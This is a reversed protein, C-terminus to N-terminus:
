DHRKQSGGHHITRGDDKPSTFGRGAHMSERPDLARNSEMVHNGLAQGIQSVAKPNIATVRPEVKRASNTSHGSGQKM